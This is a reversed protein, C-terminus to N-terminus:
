YYRICSKCRLFLFLLLVRESERIWLRDTIARKWLWRQRRWTYTCHGHWRTSSPPAPSTVRRRGAGYLRPHSGSIDGKKGPCVRPWPWRPHRSRTGSHTDAEQGATVCVQFGFCLQWCCPEARGYPFMLDALSSEQFKSRSDSKFTATHSLCHEVWWLFFILKDTWNRDNQVTITIFM